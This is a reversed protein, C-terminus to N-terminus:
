LNRRMWGGIGREREGREEGVVVGGAIDFHLTDIERWVGRFGGELGDLYVRWWVPYWWREDYRFVWRVAYVMMPLVPFDCALIRFFITLFATLSSPWTATHHITSAVLFCHLLLFLYTSLHDLPTFFQHFAKQALLRRYAKYAM